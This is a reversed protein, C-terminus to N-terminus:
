LVSLAMTELELRKSSSWMSTLALKHWREAAYHAGSPRLTVRAIVVPALFHPVEFRNWFQHATAPSSWSAM